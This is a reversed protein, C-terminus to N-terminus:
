WSWCGASGRASRGGGWSGAPCCRAGTYAAAAAGAVVYSDYRERLLVLLGIGYAAIPLRAPLGTLVLRLVGPHDFLSRYRLDM